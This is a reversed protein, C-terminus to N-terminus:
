ETGARGRTSFAFAHAQKHPRWMSDHLVFSKSYLCPWWGAQDRSGDIAPRAGTSIDGAAMVRLLHFGEDGSNSLRTKKQAGCLSVQLPVMASSKHLGM